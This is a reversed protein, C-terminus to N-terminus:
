SPENLLSLMRSVQEDHCRCIGSHTRQWDSSRDRENGSREPSQSSRNGVSWAEAVVYVFAKRQHDIVKDATMRVLLRWLGDRDSLDPFRGSEAFRFFKEFVEAVVDEEDTVRKSSGTFRGRALRVLQGYYREWLDQAAERNGGKIEQIWHSVSGDRKMLEECNPPRLFFWFRMFRIKDSGTAAEM